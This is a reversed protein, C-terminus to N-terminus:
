QFQASFGDLVDLDRELVGSCIPAHVLRLDQM